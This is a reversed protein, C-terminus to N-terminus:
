GVVELTQPTAESMPRIPAQGTPQGLRAIIPASLTAALMMAGVLGFAGLYAHPRKAAEGLADTWFGMAWPATSAFTGTPPGGANPVLIDVQGLAEMAAAVFTAGGELSGVDVVLPVCDNGVM